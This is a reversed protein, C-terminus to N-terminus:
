VTPADGGDLRTPESRGFPGDGRRAPTVDTPGLDDPLSEWDDEASTMRGVGSPPLGVRARAGDWCLRLDDWSIVDAVENLRAMVGPQDLTPDEKLATAVMQEYDIPLVEGGSGKAAFREDALAREVAAVPYGMKEAIREDDWDPHAALLAARLMIIQTPVAEHEAARGCWYRLQAQFRSEDVLVDGHRSIRRTGDVEIFEVGEMMDRDLIRWVRGFEFNLHPIAAGPAIEDDATSGTQDSRATSYWWVDVRLGEEQFLDWRVRMLTAFCHTPISIVDRSGALSNSTIAGEDSTAYTEELGNQYGIRIRV